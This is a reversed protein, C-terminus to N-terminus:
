RRETGPVRGESSSLQSAVVVELVDDVHGEVKVGTSESLQLVIQLLLSLTQSVPLLPELPLLGEVSRM